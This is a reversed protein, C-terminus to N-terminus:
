RDDGSHVGRPKQERQATYATIAAWAADRGAGIRCEAHTRHDHDGHRLWGGGLLKGSQTGVRLLGTAGTSDDQLHIDFTRQELTEPLAYRPRLGEVDALALVELTGTSMVKPGSRPATM